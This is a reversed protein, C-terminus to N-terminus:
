VRYGPETHFHFTFDSGCNVNVVGAPTIAGWPNTGALPTASIEFIKIDTTVVIAPRATVNTLTFQNNADLTRITGNIRVVMNNDYCFDPAFTYTIDSGHEVCTASATVTVNPANVNSLTPYCHPAFDVEVFYAKAINTFPHVYNQTVENTGTFVTVGDVKVSKIHAGSHPMFTYNQNANLSYNIVNTPPTAGMPTFSGWTTNLNTVTIPYEFVAIATQNSAYNWVTAETIQTAGIFWGIFNCNTQQASPFPTGIPQDFTVTKPSTGVLTGTSPNFTLTYTNATWAATATQNGTYHWVTTATIQTAGIFWGGFTYGTREPTPLTGIAVDATVNISTPNTTGGNPNLTLVYTSNHAFEATLTVDATLAGFTYTLTQTFEPDGEIETVGDIIVEKVHHGANPTFTYTPTAYEPYTIAAPTAPALAGMTSTLNSSTITWGKVFKVHLTHAAAINSFTYSGTTNGANIASPIHVGDVLVSDICYGPDAEFTFTKNTGPGVLHNGTSPLITGNGDITVAIQFAELLMRIAPAGNAATSIARVISNGTTIRTGQTTSGAHTFYEKGAIGDGRLDINNNSAAVLARVAVFYRGPELVAPTPLTLIQTGIAATKNFTQYNTAGGVNVAAGLTLDGNMQFMHLELTNRAVATNWALEIEELTTTKTIVFINGMYAGRAPTMTTGATTADDAAYKNVTGQFTQTNTIATGGTFFDSSVTRTLTNAGMAISAGTAPTATLTQTVGSTLTVPTSTAITTTGLDVNLTVNNQPNMGGNTATATFASALTQTTPIQTYPFVPITATLANPPLAKTILRIALPGVNSNGVSIVGATSGSLSTVGNMVDGFGISYNTTSTSIAAIFYLGPALTVDIPITQWGPSTPRAINGTQFLATANYATPSTASYIGLQYNVATTGAWGITISDIITPASITFLNGLRAGSATSGFGGPPIAPTNDVAYMNNTIEFTRTVVNNALNQDTEFQTATYVLTHTGLTTPMTNPTPVLTATASAGAAISAIENSTGISSGNLTASFKVQTQPLLGVNSLTANLNPLTMAAAQDAPVRSFPPTATIGIDNNLFDVNIKLDLNNPLLTLATGTNLKSFSSNRLPINNDGIMLTTTANAGEELCIFYSGAPVTVPTTLTFTTVQQQAGNTVDQTHLPTAAVTNTGTVAFIQLAFTAGTTRNQRVTVNYIETPKSFTFVNGYAMRNNTTSGVQWALSGNDVAMTNGSVMFTSTATNDSPDDDPLAASVTYTLTNEGFVTTGTVPITVTQDAGAALTIPTSTGVTTGNLKVEVVVNTQPNAGVNSVTATLNLPTLGQALPVQSFPFVPASIALDNPRLTLQMVTIDDMIITGINTSAGKPIFFWLRCPGTETAVYNVRIARYANEYLDGDAGSIMFLTEDVTEAENFIDIFMNFYHSTQANTNWRLWFEFLYNQGQVLNFEASFLQMNAAATATGAVEATRTGTRPNTSGVRWCNTTTASAAAPNAIWSIAPFGNGTTLGEFGQTFVPAGEIPAKSPSNEWSVPYEARLLKKQEKSFQVPETMQYINNPMVDQLVGPQLEEVQVAGFPTQQAFMTVSFLLTILLIFMKKM